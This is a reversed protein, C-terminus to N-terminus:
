NSDADREGRMLQKFVDSEAFKEVAETDRKMKNNKYGLEPYCDKCEGDTHECTKCHDFMMNKKSEAQYSEPLPMWAVVPIDEWDSGLSGLTYNDFYEHWYGFTGCDVDFGCIGVLSFGYDEAYGEEYTVLYDGDEEPLKHNVPIWDTKEASPLHKTSEIEDLLENIKIFTAKRYPIARAMILNCIADRYTMGKAYEKAEERTM